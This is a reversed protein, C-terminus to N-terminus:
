GQKATLRTVANWGQDFDALDANGHIVQIKLAGKHPVEVALSGDETWRIRCTEEPTFDGSQGMTSKPHFILVGNSLLRLDGVPRKVSSPRDESEFVNKLTMKSWDKAEKSAGYVRAEQQLRFVEDKLAAVQRHLRANEESLWIAAAAM